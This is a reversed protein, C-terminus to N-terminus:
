ARAGPRLRGPKFRKLRLANSVVSVSSLAMAGGAIVPNLFGLAAVPIGVTNYALAWFLNQKINRMTARSLEISDAVSRLDGRILVVGAAEVAVDTGSGIAFGVDSGALAPADNIGDGVMGVYLGRERLEGVKNAKDGPLVEALVRGAPIGVEAAIHRATRANDGTLMWVEIGMASLLAVAERSSDKVTDAVAMACAARGEVAVLIVTKGQEELERVTAELEKSLEIGKERLFKGTGALIARGDVTAEIGRGPVAEFGTVAPAGALEGAKKVIAQALPHESNKEAAGALGLLFDERGAFGPAPVLDTVEPEGRTITGTKDLIVADLRNARELHEGGKILIGYEAGKGTGVMISTPTALGLACPCAIVLVATFNLLARTFNGPDGIFYWALFTLFAVGIVAPVFYASIVDALRQIPAKSGQAEEVVRIIQALATDRGVRTAEFKFTGLKNITAGTVPDGERKDVPLSEGTLMSEDVASFGERIVGDVPIKEGPRVVVLDGAVVEEVPVDMERGDRVIRANRAQLGALKRLAESTKGRANAELMKGLLILTLLVASSEFYVHHLGLRHGWFTAATSYLYAASTGMAVLVSMNASKNKLAIYSDRYFHYGAVVQVPTALFFQFLSSRLLPPLLEGYATLMGAMNLLLPASLVASFIFLFRQRRMEGAREAAERDPSEGAAPGAEYGLLLIRNVLDQPSIEVPIYNVVAKEAALNVVAGVVGPTNKLGKEVRASCAACTMGRVKLEIREGPVSYGLQGVMRVFDAPGTVGPEYEVTATEAALNVRASLVGPMRALGREVRASCAACTMGKVKFSKKVADPKKLALAEEAM